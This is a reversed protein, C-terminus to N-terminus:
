EANEAVDLPLLMQPSNQLLIRFAELRKGGGLVQEFTATEVKTTENQNEGKSQHRSHNRSHLTLTERRRCNAVWLSTVTQRQVTLSLRLCNKKGKDEM